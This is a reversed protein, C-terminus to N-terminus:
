SYSWRTLVVNGKKHKKQFWTSKVVMGNEMAFDIMRQGNDNTVDRLSEKGTTERYAEEKGVKANFNGLVIKVDQRSINDMENELQGYITDKKEEEADETPAYVCVFTVNFFRSRSLVYENM